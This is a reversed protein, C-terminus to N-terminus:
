AIDVGVGTLVTRERMSRRNWKNPMEPGKRGVANRGEEEGTEGDQSLGEDEEM